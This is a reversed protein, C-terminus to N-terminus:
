ARVIVASETQQEWRQWGDTEWNSFGWKDWDQVREDWNGTEEECQCQAWGYANHGNGKDKKEM